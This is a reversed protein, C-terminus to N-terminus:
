DPLVVQKKGDVTRIVPRTTPITASRRAALLDPIRTWPLLAELNRITPFVMPLEGRRHGDLAQQPTAWRLEIGEIRDPQPDQGPPLEALFFYTDFRKPVGEPTIWRATWVLSAPEIRVRAEEFLERSACQRATAIEDAGADEKEVIGGPFVWNGPVFSAREARRQLLVEFPEGRLVIVSASPVIAVDAPGTGAGKPLQDDRVNHTSM